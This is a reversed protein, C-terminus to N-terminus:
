LKLKPLKIVAHKSMEFFTWYELLIPDLACRFRKWSSYKYGAILNNKWRANRKEKWNRQKARLLDLVLFNTRIGAFHEGSNKKRRDNIWKWKVSVNSTTIENQVISITEMVIPVFYVCFFLLILSRLLFSILSLFTGVCDSDCLFSRSCFLQWISSFRSFFLVFVSFPLLFVPLRLLLRLWVSCLMYNVFTICNSLGFFFACSLVLIADTVTSLIDLAFFLWKLKVALRDDDTHINNLNRKNGCMRSNM